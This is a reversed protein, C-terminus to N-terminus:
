RSRVAVSSEPGSDELEAETQSPGPEAPMTPLKQAEASSEAPAGGVPPEERSVAPKKRHVLTTRLLTLLQRDVREYYSRTVQAAKEEDGAEIAALVGRLHDPFSPELIWLMPLRELTNRLADLFPNSIWRVAVSHGADIVADLWRQFGIAVVKADKAAFATILLTSLERLRQLDSEEARQVALRTAYELLVIRPALIDQVIQVVEAMDPGSRLYPSLLELTGTRRYDSVIVGRGHRVTVLRSQELKRVAERLTNRNTGFSIALERESLLREGAKLEGRLIRDRLEEFIADAINAGKTTETV